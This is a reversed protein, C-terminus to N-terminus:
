ELEAFYVLGALESLFSTEVFDFCLSDLHLDFDEVCTQDVRGGCPGIEVCTGSCGENWAFGSKEIWTEVYTGGCTGTWTRVVKVVCATWTRGVRAM